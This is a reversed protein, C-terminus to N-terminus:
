KFGRVLTTIATIAVAAGGVWKIVSVLWSAAKWASVLDAVNNQLTDIKDELSKITHEIEILRKEEQLRHEQLGM